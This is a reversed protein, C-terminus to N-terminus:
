RQPIVPKEQIKEAHTAFEERFVRTLDADELIIMDTDHKKLNDNQWGENWWCFGVIGPWRSSFLDELAAKAWEGADVKRHHIDCGFEAIVIPKGPALKNLRPYATRMKFRFSETGDVARPTLPGYASLAM